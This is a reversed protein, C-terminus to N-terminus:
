HLFICWMMYIGLVVYMFYSYLERLLWRMMMKSTKRPLSSTSYHSSSAIYNSSVEPKKPLTAYNVASSYLDRSSTSYQSHMEPPAYSYMYVYIYYLYTKLNFFLFYKYPAGPGRNGWHQHCCSCGRITRTAAIAKVDGHKPPPQQCTMGELHWRWTQRITLRWTILHLCM